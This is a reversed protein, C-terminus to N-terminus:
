TRQLSLSSFKNRILARENIIRWPPSSSFSCFRHLNEMVWGMLTNIKEHGGGGGEVRYNKEGRQDKILSRDRITLTNPRGFHPLLKRGIEEMPSTHINEPIVCEM